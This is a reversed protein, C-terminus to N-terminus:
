GRMAAHFTHRFAPPWVARRSSQASRTARRGEWVHEGHVTSRYLVAAFLPLSDKAWQHRHHRVIVFSVVEETCGAGSDYTGM